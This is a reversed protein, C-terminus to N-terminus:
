NPVKKQQQLVRMAIVAAEARTLNELPDFRQTMKKQGALLVNDKGEILGAKSVAEVSAMAYFDINNADTFSKQLSSLSKADDNNLKLEAARAIMVAADQRTIANYPLFLGNANGRVIGSRAAAEIHLFDFTRDPAITGRQVDRFTSPTASNVSQQTDLNILPIDFIKVLMTVFEGRNIADNPMFQGTSKPNMLGKSYLTDLDDRAWPHNTVDNFSDNMYMVQFYGFSDIPVTITNNKPDVVGGINKWSPSATGQGAPNLFYGYQYVTVYKWADNRITSDYKLTLTGRETPVVLDTYNRIYFPTQMPDSTNPLTGSGLFAEQLGPNTTNATRPIIGADIWFRKSATRFHGTPEVLYNTGILSEKLKDVRGDNNNAVGFLIQRNTSIYQVTDSRDNRMLQTDKPFKLQIDGDFVKMTANLPAKYQIGEIGTNTNFLVISGNMKSTGRNIVFKIENSGVKLNKVEYFFRNSTKDYIAQEKGFVVSDAKDAEMELMYFNQNISAQDIGKANKILQNPSPSIFAYPVPERSITVLKNATSGSSTNGSVLEFVYEGYEIMNYVTSTFDQMPPSSLTPSINILIPAALGPAKRLYLATGPTTAPTATIVSNVVQGQLTVQSARTVYTDPLSGATFQPNLADAEVPKLHNIVPVNASLLFIDVSSSTVLYGNVKLQIKLTYKGDKEFILKGAQTFSTVDLAFTGKNAATPTHSAPPTVVVDNLTYVVDDYDTVPLNVIRGTICPSGGAAPTLNPCALKTPVDIVIGNFINNIIVYPAGSIVLNYQKTGAINGGPSGLPLKYPVIKLSTAGDLVGELPIDVWRTTVGNVTVSNAAPVPFRGNTADLANRYQTDNLSLAVEATEVNTYVRLMAPFDTIQTSGSESITTEYTAIGDSATRILSLHDVYPQSPDMFSFNYTSTTSIGNLDTFRYNVEQYASQLNIPLQGTFNYLNYEPKSNVADKVLTSPLPTGDSLAGYVVNTVTSRTIDYHTTNSATGTIFVDLSVFRPDGNATLPIKITSSLAVDKIANDTLVPETVLKLNPTAPATPDAGRKNIFANYAFAQGNDYVFSRTATFFNTLNKAALTLINDGPRFKLDSDRGTNSVYTFDGYTFAAPQYVTGKHNAEVEIANSSTGTIIAGTYPAQKPYMGGDIFDEGAFKLKTINTVPTYYAYAPSSAVSGGQGYKVTIKNRGQALQVNQFSIQNNNTTSKIPRNTSNVVNQNTNENFIEYYITSIQDDPIGNILFEITIPNLTFRNVLSDDVTIVGSANPTPTYLNTITITGAANATLPPLLTILMAAILILSAWKKSLLKL